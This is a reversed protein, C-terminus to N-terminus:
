LDDVTRWYKGEVSLSGVESMMDQLRREVELLVAPSRTLNGLEGMQVATLKNLITILQCDIPQVYTHAYCRRFGQQLLRLLRMGSHPLDGQPERHHARLSKSRIISHVYM